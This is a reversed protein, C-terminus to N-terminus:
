PVTIYVVYIYGFNFTVSTKNFYNLISHCLNYAFFYFAHGLQGEFNHTLNNGQAIIAEEHQRRRTPRYHWLTACVVGWDRIKVVGPVKPTDM